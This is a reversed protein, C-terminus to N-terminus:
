ALVSIDIKKAATRLAYDLTALPLRRRRALELYCADYVTLRLEDALSLTDTWAKSLTESDIEIPIQGLAELADARQAM